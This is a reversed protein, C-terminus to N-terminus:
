IKFGYYAKSMLLDEFHLNKSGGIIGGLPWRMGGPRGLLLPVNTKNDILNEILKQCRNKTSKSDDQSALNPHNRVKKAAFNPWTTDLFCRPLKDVDLVHITM